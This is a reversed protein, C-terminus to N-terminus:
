ERNSKLARVAEAGIIQYGDATYHNELRFPYLACPDSYQHFTEVLDIIPLGLLRVIGVVDDRHPDPDPTDCFRQWSPLYVITLTGGWGRVTDRARTLIARFADLDEQEVARDRRDRREWIARIAMARLEHLTLFDWGIIRSTFARKRGRHTAATDYRQNTLEVLAADISQQQARLNQRFAPNDLYRQLIPNQLEITLRGVDDGEDYFWLVRKPRLPEGYELLAALSGLSTLNRMGLNITAPFESRIVAVADDESGVCAGQAFSDGLVVVDARPLGHSGRPNRFGYEDSEYASYSGGENCFITAVDAIGGVTQLEVGGATIRPRDSRLPYVRQGDARLDELFELKTRIDFPEGMRRAALADAIVKPDTLDGIGHVRWSLIGEVAYVVVALAILARAIFVRVSPRCRWRVVVVAGLFVFPIVVFVLFIGRFFQDYRSIEYAITLAFFVMAAYLVANAIRVARHSPLTVSRSSIIQVRM